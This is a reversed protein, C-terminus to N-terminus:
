NTHNYEKGYYQRGMKELMKCYDEDNTRDISQQILINNDIMGQYFKFNNLKSYINLLRFFNFITIVFFFLCANIILLKKVESRTCIYRDAGLALVCRKEENTLHIWEYCNSNIYEHGCRPCIQKASSFMKGEKESSYYLLNGCHPCTSSYTTHM